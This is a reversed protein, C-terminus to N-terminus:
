ALWVLVSAFSLFSLFGRATKEFRMAIRRNRKIKQFFNEVLHRAQYLHMDTIRPYLRNRRQAIVPTMGHQIALSAITESDYAKDAILIDAYGIAAILRPAESSDHVNGPTLHVHLPNGLADVACHIKTTRGGSSRGVCEHIPGKKEAWRIKIPACM